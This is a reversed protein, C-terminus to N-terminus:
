ILSFDRMLLEIEGYEKWQAKIYNNNIWQEQKDTRQEQKFSTPQQLVAYTSDVMDGAQRDITKVLSLPDFSTAASGKTSPGSGAARENTTLTM